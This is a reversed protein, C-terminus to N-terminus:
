GHLGGTLAAQAEAVQRDTDALTGDTTIVFDARAAKEAAPWQAAIRQQAQARSMGREVLRALQMEPPCVTM